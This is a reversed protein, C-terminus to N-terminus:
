PVNLLKVDLLVMEYGVPILEKKIQQIFDKTRKIKHESERLPSLVKSIHKALQYTATKINSVIPRIPVDDIKGNDPLKYLKATGHFKGPCSVTPYLKKYEYLSVKSKM